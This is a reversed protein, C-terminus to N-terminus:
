KTKGSFRKRREGVGLVFIMWGLLILKWFVFNWKQFVDSFSFTKTERKKPPDFFPSIKTLSLCFNPLHLTHTVLRLSIFNIINEVHETLTFVWVCKLLISLFTKGVWWCLPACSLFYLISSPVHPHVYFTCSIIVVFAVVDASCLPNSFKHTYLIMRRVTFAVRLVYYVVKGNLNREVWENRETMM